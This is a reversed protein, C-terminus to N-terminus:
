LITTPAPQDDVAVFVVHAAEAVVREIPPMVQRRYAREDGCLVDVLQDGRMTEVTLEADQADIDVAIVIPHQVGDIAYPGGDDNALYVAHEAVQVGDSHGITRVELTQLRM